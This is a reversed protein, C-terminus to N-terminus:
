PRGGVTTNRVREREALQHYLTDALGNGARAMQRGRETDLMERFSKTASNDEFAGKGGAASFGSDMQRFVQSWLTAELEVCAERLKALRAREAPDTEPAKTSGTASGPTSAPSSPLTGPARSGGRVKRVHHAFAAGSSSGSGAPQADPAAAGITFSIGAMPDM